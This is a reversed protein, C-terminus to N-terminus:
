HSPFGHKSSGCIKGGKMRMSCSHRLFKGSLDLCGDQSKTNSCSSPKNFDECFSHQGRDTRPAKAATVGEVRAGGRKPPVINMRKLENQVATGLTASDIMPPHIHTNWLVLIEQYTLPVAQRQARVGNSHIFKEFLLSYQHVTPSGGCFKELAVKLLASPSWDLTHFHRAIASFNFFARM